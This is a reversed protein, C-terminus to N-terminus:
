FSCERLCQAVYQQAAEPLEPYVPLALSHKAANESEPFMGERYGLSQFCEQLHFPVPYYVETTVGKDGLKKRVNDRDVNKPFRIVYQNYIHHEAGWQAKPTEIDLGNLLSNYRTANKRRMEHWTNLHPLKVLLAAAQITDLRFNGGIMSHYYKPHSGHNRLKRLKDAYAADNTVVMGGDGIGGLNKSPFFSFCGMTGMSGALKVGQPTPYGAGIAQAADEIVAINMRKALALIPGMDACQGFLHVPIIAKVRARDKVNDEFWKELLAPSMNMSDHEIEVFVPTAGLRAIVGASAFFSYPTTIVIDGREIDLAMLAALLADTGSSMGVAHSTGCYKAVASEFAEVQPGMIYKTASLVDLVAATLEKELAKHQAGIDLLPVNM